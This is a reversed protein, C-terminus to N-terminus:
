TAISLLQQLMEDSTRIVRSSASFGTNATIMDVFEQSLDVNSLELAGPVVRGAGMSQPAVQVPTGSNPGAEFMNEGAEVLGEPNSFTAVSVQGVPRTLGNTFAGNITGDQAISFSDLTGVPSGDRNVAAM